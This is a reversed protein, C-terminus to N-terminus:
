IPWKWQDAPPLEVLPEWPKWKLMSRALDYERQAQVIVEEIQGCDITKELKSIDSITSVAQLRSQVIATTHKRYGSDEPMLNVTKLIRNYLSKLVAHPNKSVALGTLQTSKKVAQM